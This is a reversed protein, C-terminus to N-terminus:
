KQFFMMVAIIGMIVAFGKRLMPGSLQQAWGGGFYGGAFV